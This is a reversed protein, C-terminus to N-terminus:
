FSSPKFFLTHELYGCTNNKQRIPITVNYLYYITFQSTCNNISFEYNVNTKEHPQKGKRFSSTV